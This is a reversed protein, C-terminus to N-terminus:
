IFFVLQFYEHQYSILLHLTWVERSNECVSRLTGEEFSSQLKVIHCVKPWLYGRAWEPDM